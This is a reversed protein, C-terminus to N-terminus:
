AANRQSTQQETKWNAYEEAREHASPGAFIAIYGVGENDYDIAEVRWSGSVEKDQAIEYTM